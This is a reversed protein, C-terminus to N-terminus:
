KFMKDFYSLHVNCVAKDVVEADKFCKVYYYDSGSKFLILTFAFFMIFLMILSTYIIERYYTM